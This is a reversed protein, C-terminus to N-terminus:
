RRRATASCTTPWAAMRPTIDNYGTVGDSEPFTIPAATGSGAEPAGNHEAPFWSWARDFRLPGRCRPEAWRGSIRRTSRTISRAIARSGRRSACRRRTCARPRCFRSRDPHIRADNSLDTTQEVHYAGQYGFKINHAGTVYTASARWTNPNQTNDIM